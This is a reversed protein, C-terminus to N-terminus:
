RFASAYKSRAVTHLVVMMGASMLSKASGIVLRIPLGVRVRLKLPVDIIEAKTSAVGRPNATYVRVEIRCPTSNLPRLVLFGRRQQDRGPSKDHAVCARLRGVPAM